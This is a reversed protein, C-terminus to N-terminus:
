QYKHQNYQQPSCLIFGYIKRWYIIIYYITHLLLFKIESHNIMIFKYKNNIVTITYLLVLFKVIELIIFNM